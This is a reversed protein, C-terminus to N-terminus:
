PPLRLVTIHRVSWGDARRTLSVRWASRCIEGCARGVIVVASDTFVRPTVVEVIGANGPNAEFWADWGAPHARFFAEITGLTTREVRFPLGLGTSDAAQLALTDRDDWPGGYASLTPAQRRPDHWLTIARARERRAFLEVLTARLVARESARESAPDRGSACGLAGLALLLVLLARWRGPKRPRGGVGNM